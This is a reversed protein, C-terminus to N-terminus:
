VRPVAFSETRSRRQPEVLNKLLYQGGVGFRDARQVLVQGGPSVRDVLDQTREVLRAIPAQRDDPGLTRAPPLGHVAQDVGLDLSRRVGDREFTFSLHPDRVGLEAIM